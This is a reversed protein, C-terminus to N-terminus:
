AVGGNKVKEDVFAAGLAAHTLHDESPRTVAHRSDSDTREGHVRASALIMAAEIAYPLEVPASGLISALRTRADRQRDHAAAMALRLQNDGEQAFRKIAPVTLSERWATEYDSVAFALDTLAVTLDSAHPNTIRGRAIPTPDSM